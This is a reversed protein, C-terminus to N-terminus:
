RSSEPASAVPEAIPLGGIYRVPVPSPAPNSQAHPYLREAVAGMLPRRDLVARLRLPSDSGPLKSVIIQRSVVPQQPTLEVMEKVAGGVLFVGSPVVIELAITAATALQSRLTATLTIPGSGPAQPGELTLVFPAQAGQEPSSQARGIRTTVAPEVSIAGGTQAKPSCAIAFFVMWGLLVTPFRM